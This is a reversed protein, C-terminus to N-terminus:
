LYNLKNLFDKCEKAAESDSLGLNVLIDYSIKIHNIAKTIDGMKEYCFASNKHITATEPHNGMGSSELISIARSWNNIAQGYDKMHYYVLGTNNVTTAHEFNNEGKVRSFVFGAKEFSDIAKRFEGKVLLYLGELNLLEATKLHYAGNIERSKIIALGISDLAKENIQIGNFAISQLRLKDIINEDLSNEQDLLVQASKFNGLDIMASAVAFLSNRNFSIKSKCGEYIEIVDRYRGLYFYLSLKLEQNVLEKKISNLFDNTMYPLNEPNLLKKSFGRDLNIFIKEILEFKSVEIINNIVSNWLLENENKYLSINNPQILLTQVIAPALINAKNFGLELVLDITNSFGVNVQDIFFHTLGYDMHIFSKKQLSNILNEVGLSSYSVGIVEGLVYHFYGEITFSVYLKEDRVSETLVGELLMQQYPSDIQISRVFDGILEDDFLLDVPLIHQENQLMLEALRYLLLHNSTM